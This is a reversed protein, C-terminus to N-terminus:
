NGPSVAPSVLIERLKPENIFYISTHKSSVLDFEELKSVYKKVTNYHIGLERSLEMLSCGAAHLELHQIIQKCKEQSIFHVVAPKQYSNEKDFYVLHNGVKEARVFGFKDLVDLHWRVVGGTLQIKKVLKNLHIGPHARVYEFINRRNANQLVDTKALISGEVIINKEILSKLISRIGNANVNIAAKSFRSNLYSIIGIPDFNKHKELYERILDLAIDEYVLVGEDRKGKEPVAVVVPPIILLDQAIQLRESPSFSLMERIFEVKAKGIFDIEDVAALFDDSVITIPTAALMAIQDAPLNSGFVELLKGKNSLESVIEKASKAPSRLVESKGERSNDTRNKDVKKQNLKRARRTPKKFHYTLSAIPIAVISGVCAILVITSIDIPLPGTPDDDDSPPVKVIVYSTKTETGSDGDTDTIKLTVTYTGADIYQLTPNQDTSTGGDGFDWFFTLPANGGSGAYTFIIWESAFVSTANATFAISPVTDIDVMVYSTKIETDFDYDADTVVLTVTYTGAAAYQHAPNRDTSTEDDGFDWAFTLPANGGYGTYTFNVWQSAVLNTVNATFNASPVSALEVTIYGTKIETDSDGDTDTVTLTVTFTGNTVYQHTPNLDTSTGGDGFHWEYGSPLNGSDGTFTFEVSQWQIISTANATFNAIVVLDPIVTIFDLKTIVDSDENLDTVTLSINYSGAASYQHTPNQETSTTGDGFSWEYM